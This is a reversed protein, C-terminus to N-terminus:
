ARGRAGALDAAWRLDDDDDIEVWAEDPVPVLGYRGGEALHVDIAHEYWCDARTPDTAFRQLISRLEDAAARTWRGLGVSEGAPEPIGVKGIAVIRDGGPSVAVKMAEDNRGRAPDVALVAEGPAASARRVLEVFWDAGAYLDSNVVVVGDGPGDLWVELGRLLSCWNNRTAYDDNVVLDIHLDARWPDVYADIMETSGPDGVVVLLRDLASARFADLHAAAPCGSGVPVLWKPRGANATLRRGVGAALVIAATV